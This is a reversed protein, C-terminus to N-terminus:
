LDPPLPFSKMEPRVGFINRYGDGIQDICFVTIAVLGTKLYFVALVPVDCM